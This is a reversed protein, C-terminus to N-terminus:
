RQPRRESTIEVMRAAMRMQILKRIRVVRMYCWRQKQWKAMTEPDSVRLLGKKTTFVRM